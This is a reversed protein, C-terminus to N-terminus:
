IRGRVLGVLGGCVGRLGVCMRGMGAWSRGARRAAAAAASWRAGQGSTGMLHPGGAGGVGWGRQGRLATLRDM